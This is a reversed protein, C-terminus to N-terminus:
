ELFSRLINSLVSKMSDCGLLSSYRIQNPCECANNVCFASGVCEPTCQYPQPAPVPAPTPALAPPCEIPVSNSSPGELCGQPPSYVQTPSRACVGEICQANNTCPPYCVQQYAPSSYVIKPPIVYQVPAPQLQMAPATTQPLMKVCGITPSYSIPIPCTCMGRVCLATGMCPCAAPSDLEVPRPPLTQAHSPQSYPTLQPRLYSQPSQFYPLTLSSRLYPSLYTSPACNIPNKLPQTPPPPPPPSSPPPPPPPPPPLPTPPTLQQSPLACGEGKNYVLPKPCLCTNQVCIAIDLCPPQCLHNQPAFDKKYFTIRAKPFRDFNDGM